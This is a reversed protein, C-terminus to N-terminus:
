REITVLTRETEEFPLIYARMAISLPQGGEERDPAGEPPYGGACQAIEAEAEARRGKMALLRGAPALLPLAMGIFDPLSCLARSIIVDFSGARLTEARVHRAAIEGGLGLNRIAHALFSVKKRAADILTVSLAPRAIKLVLGPFGGGSGIDLLTGREPLCPLAALSDVVHRVAVEAPGTIATLNTRRNWHLLLAAHRAFLDLQSETVAIGLQGAGDRVLAKWASSGIEM